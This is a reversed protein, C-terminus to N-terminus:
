DLYSDIPPPALDPRGDPFEKDTKHADDPLSSSSMPLLPPSSTQFSATNALFDRSSPLVITDDLYNSNFKLYQELLDAIGTLSSSVDDNDDKEEDDQEIKYIKVLDRYDGVVPDLIAHLVAKSIGKDKIYDSFNM